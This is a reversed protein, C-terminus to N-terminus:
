GGYPVERKEGARWVTVMGTGFQLELSDGQVNPALHLGDLLVVDFGHTLVRLAPMADVVAGAIARSRLMEVQSLVPNAPHLVGGQQEGDVLNGALARRADVLRVVSTARYVPQSTYAVYTAVAVAASTVAAVLLFHRRLLGFWDRLNLPPAIGHPQSDLGEASPGLLSSPADRQAPLQDVTGDGPILRTLRM